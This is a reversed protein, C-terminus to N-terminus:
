GLRKEALAKKNEILDSKSIFFVDLSCIKAAVRNKRVENWTVGTLSTILDIRVPPMGLQVVQGPSSFDEQSLGLSGFGFGILLTLIKQANAPESAILLDFDGTFRPSGHFALAYGGVIVYEVNHKNFLELLEKFDNHIEM